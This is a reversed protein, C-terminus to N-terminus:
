EDDSLLQATIPQRIASPLSARKMSAPMYCIIGSKEIARIAPAAKTTIADFAGPAAGRSDIEVEEPKTM